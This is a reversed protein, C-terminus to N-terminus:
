TNKTQRKMQAQTTVPPEEYVLTIDAALEKKMISIETEIGQM